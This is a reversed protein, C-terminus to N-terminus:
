RPKRAHINLKELDAGPPEPMRITLRELQWRKPDFSTLFGVEPRPQRVGASGWLRQWAALGERKEPLPGDVPRAAFHLRQDLGDRESQWLLLGRPLASGEYVIMGPKQSLFPNLFACDRTSVIMPDAPPGPSDADGLRLIAGRGALTSQLLTCQINTRGKCDAGPRLQVAETGAVILSQRLMLRSGTGDLVVGARSSLIVCENIACARARDAASEGSGALSVAAQWGVPVVHQPGELRTRFLRIDGGKVRVVHSARATTSDAVKLVGAVVEVSGNEVEILARAADTTVLKLATRPKKEGPKKEAPEEFFLVLNAGKVRIPSTNHDGTGALHLVVRPGPKKTEFVRALHAGLDTMALDIREGHYNDDGPNPIEPAV